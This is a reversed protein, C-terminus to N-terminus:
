VHPKPNIQVGDLDNFLINNNEGAPYRCKTVRSRAPTNKVLRRIATSALSGTATEVGNASGNSWRRKCIIHVDVLRAHNHQSLIMNNRNKPISGSTVM